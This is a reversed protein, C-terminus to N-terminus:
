NDELTLWVSVSLTLLSVIFYLVVLYFGVSTPQITLKTVEGFFGPLVIGFITSSVLAFIRKRKSGKTSGDRRLTNLSEAIHTSLVIEDKRRAAINHAHSMLSEYFEKKYKEALTNAEPSLTKQRSNAM